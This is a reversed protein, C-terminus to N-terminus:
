SSMEMGSDSISDKNSYPQDIVEPAIQDPDM